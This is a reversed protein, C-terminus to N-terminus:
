MVPRGGAGWVVGNPVVAAVGKPLGQQAVAGELLKGKLTHGKWLTPLIYATVSNVQLINNLMTTEPKGGVVATRKKMYKQLQTQNPQTHAQM